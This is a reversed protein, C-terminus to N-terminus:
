KLRYLIRTIVTDGISFYVYYIGTSKSQLSLIVPSDFNYMGAGLFEDVIIAVENGLIDHVKINVYSAVPVDFYYSGLYEYEDDDNTQAVYHTPMECGVILLISILILKKM